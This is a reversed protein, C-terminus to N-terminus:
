LLRQALRELSAALDLDKKTIGGADHTSLDVVVTGYVNSWEPHHNMAQIATASAAMFGFALTFDDFKYERHLKDNSLKWGPLDTLALQVEAPTLKVPMSCKLAAPNYRRQSEDRHARLARKRPHNASPGRRVLRGIRLGYVVMTKRDRTTNSEAITTPVEGCQSLTIAESHPPGTSECANGNEGYQIAIGPPTAIPM